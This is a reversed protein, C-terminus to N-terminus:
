KIELWYNICTSTKPHSYGMSKATESNLFCCPEKSSKLIPAKKYNYFNALKEFIQIISLDPKAGIPISYIGPRPSNTILELTFDYVAKLTTCTSYLSESNFLEIYENNVIKKRLNPLWARHSLYGLVVPFRINVIPIFEGIEESLIQESLLKTTGYLSVPSPSTWSAIEPIRLDGYVSLSSYNIIIKPIKKQFKSQLNILSAIKINASIIDETSNESTPFAGTSNILIDFQENLNEIKSTYSHDLKLARFNKHDKYKGINKLNTRYTGLVFYGAKLFEKTIYSGVYSSCSSIFVKM